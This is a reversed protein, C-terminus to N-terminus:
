ALDGDNHSHIGIPRGTNEHVSRVIDSIEGPLSGGNTDCLVLRSAGGDAASRLMRLAFEPDDKYGDFFHEADFFVERGHSRLFSVSRYILEANEEESIGLGKVTHAKWTKGFITIVPTESQLLGQLNPDNEINALSRATSGFSCLKSHSLRLNRVKLFFEEDKPNSSPWGGEIYDMGFEDLKETILLKDQVSLNIHEGQTGDRLTTDYLETAKPM